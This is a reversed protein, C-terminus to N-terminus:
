LEYEAVLKLYKKSWIEANEANRMPLYPSSWFLFVSESFQTVFAILEEFSAMVQSSFEKGLVFARVENSRRMTRIEKVATPRPEDHNSFHMLSLSKIEEVHFRIWSTSLEVVDFADWTNFISESCPIDGCNLLVPNEANLINM